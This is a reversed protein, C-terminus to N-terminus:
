RNEGRVIDRAIKGIREEREALRHLQPLLKAVSEEDRDFMEQYIATRRNVRMQLARIMKLEALTDVLPPDTPQGSASSAAGRRAQQEQQAKKIAALIDELADIIDQEIQQTLKGTAGTDLRLMVAEMDERIQRAAEPLAVATADERFLVMVADIQVVIKAEKGSLRSAEIADARDRDAPPKQDFRVTAEYVQKQMRLMKRFRGELLVLLREVEEERLQRM